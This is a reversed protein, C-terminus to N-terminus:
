PQPRAVDGRWAGTEGGRSEIFEKFRKVDGKVKRDVFGAKDGVTEAVGEPELDMQVTVRTHSDDLRHFTVVGAHTPGDVSTWAVREDPHQETIRADFEREVGAIKVKWHTMEPTVQRIEEVGDMFQPFDEFQTWQNYATRVPVAVDVSETVTSMTREVGERATGLEVVRGDKVLVTQERIADIEAGLLIVVASLYLWMLLVIVAALAGYTKNYSGFSSVYLSFGLSALLWLGVATVNGPTVWHWRARHPAPGFRYMVSLGTGILVLLILWRVVQAGVAAVPDLGIRDLVVPFAAVLAIAVGASILAGITLLLSIGRLQAFNRTEQAGYIINLGTMLAQMGGSAAWLVALLSAVLGFTLGGGGADVTKDLQDTILTRADEPLAGLIPSLQERAQGADAFLAYVTVMAIIGPFLALMWYFAVGASVLTLNDNSMDEQLRRLYRWAKRWWPQKPPPEARAPVTAQRELVQEAM